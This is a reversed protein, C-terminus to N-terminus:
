GGGPPVLKVFRLGLHSRAGATQAALYNAAKIQDDISMRSMSGSDNSATQIAEKAGEAIATKIEDVEVSSM